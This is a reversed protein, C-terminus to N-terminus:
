NETRRTCREVGTSGCSLWMWTLFPRTPLLSQSTRLILFGAVLQNLSGQVKTLSQLTMHESVTAMQILSFGSVLFDVSNLPNFLKWFGTATGTSLVFLILLWFKLKSSFLAQFYRQLHFKRPTFGRRHVRIHVTFQHFYHFAMALLFRILNLLLCFVRTM